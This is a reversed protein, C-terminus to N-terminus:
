RPHQMENIRNRVTRRATAKPAVTKIAAAGAELEESSFLPSKSVPSKVAQVANTVVLPVVWVGIRVWNL